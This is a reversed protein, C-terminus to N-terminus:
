ETEERVSVFKNDEFYGGFAKIHEEKKRQMYERELKQEETEDKMRRQMNLLEDNAKLEYCSMDVAEVCNANNFRNFIKERETMNIKVTSGIIDDAKNSKVLTKATIRMGVYVLLGLILLQIITM